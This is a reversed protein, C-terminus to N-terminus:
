RLYDHPNVFAGQYMMEFHLLPNQVNGSAGIAGIVAGQNVSQGCKVSVASLNAYLTQWGNGHNIVILYGYGWDNWGAYVVVGSDAAFVSDGENGDIDIAPHNASPDFDFGSLFHNKAPWIFAGKGTTGSVAKECAGEGLVKAASPNDRPIDPASWSVFARRGGPIVLWTGAPINPDTLDGLAGIDLHNGPFGIIVEPAVAYFNAVTTLSDGASWRHYTGDVPLINMQQGPRFNHPNDKLLDQNSWLLTEPRLGFKGAVGFLTDGPQVTYQIVELRPRSPADTHLSALRSIGQSAIQVPYPAQIGPPPAAPVVTPLSAASIARAQNVPRAKLIQAQFFLQRLGWAFLLILAILLTHTGLRVATEALGAHSIYEWAEFFLNRPKPKRNPPPPDPVMGQVM